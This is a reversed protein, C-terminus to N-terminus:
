PRGPPADPPLRYIPGREMVADLLGDDVAQYVDDPRVGKAEEFRYRLADTVRSSMLYGGAMVLGVADMLASDSQVAALRRGAPVDRLQELASVLARRLDPRVKLVADVLAGSMDVENASPLGAGAPIMEDALAALVARHESTLITM